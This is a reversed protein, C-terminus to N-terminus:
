AGAERARFEGTVSRFQRTLPKEVVRYVMAAVLLAFVAAVVPYAWSLDFGSRAGLRSFVATVMPLAIVHTLYLSYSMDGLHLGPRFVSSRARAEFQLSGLVLLLAPLGSALSRPLASDAMWLVSGISLAILCGGMAAGLPRRHTFLHGALLGFLFELVIDNGYFALATPPQSVQVAVLVGIVIASTLLVRFRRPALLGIAVAIYFYIEYNLTWGPILVPWLGPYAPNPWPLFLLSALVHNAELSTSALMSPVVSAAAVIVATIAWYLPVIRVARRMLFNLPRADLDIAAVYMIFGSIVFFIDVGWNGIEAWPLAAGPSIRAIQTDLHTYVVLAAALGRLYQIVIVM